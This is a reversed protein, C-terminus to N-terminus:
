GGGGVTGEMAGGGLSAAAVSASREAAEALPPPTSKGQACHSPLAMRPSRPTQAPLLHIQLLLHGSFFAGPSVDRAEVEWPPLTPSLHKLSTLFPIRSPDWIPARTPYTYVSSGPLPVIQTYPGRTPSLYGFPDQSQPATSPDGGLLVLATRLEVERGHQSPSPPLSPSALPLPYPFM